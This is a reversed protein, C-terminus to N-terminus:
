LEVEELIMQVLVFNKSPYEDQWEKLAQPALKKIYAGWGFEPQVLIGSEEKEAVWYHKPHMHSKRDSM